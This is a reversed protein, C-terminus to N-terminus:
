SQLDFLAHMGSDRIIEKLDWGEQGQEALVQMFSEGFDAGSLRNVLGQEYSVMKYEIQKM